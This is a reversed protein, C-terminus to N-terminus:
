GDVTLVISEAPPKQCRDFLWPYKTPSRKSGVLVLGARLLNTLDQPQLVVSRSRKAM